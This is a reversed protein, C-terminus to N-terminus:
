ILAKKQYGRKVIFIILMTPERLLFTKEKHAM